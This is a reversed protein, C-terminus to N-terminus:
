TISQLTSILSRIKDFCEAYEQDCRSDSVIGGGAWCFIDQQQCLLSRITLNSDMRGDFDQYFVSGCYVERRHPELEEIVEMARWKPAGTISGGPFCQELLQLPDVGKRLQGRITSVLHFVNDFEQLEFLNQVRISGYDCVKGLDNRLLDVIMLNEARDKESAMLERALRQDEERDKGRPRTGKIPQTLAQGDVVQLFREPSLSLLAKDDWRLFASFPKGTAQRLRQYAAFPSGTYRSSFRQTLNVQYCDGAKIYGKIRAFAQRYHSEPMDNAFTQQLAFHQAPPISGALAALVAERTQPPCNAHFWVSSRRAQHDVCLSWLYLGLFGQEVRWEGPAQIGPYGLFGMLGGRFPMAEALPDTQGHQQPTYCTLLHRAAQFLDQDIGEPLSESCVLRGCDMTLTAAPLASVIDFRGGRPNHNCSDLFVVGHLDQLKAVLTSSDTTYPIEILPKSASM